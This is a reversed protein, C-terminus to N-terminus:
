YLTPFTFYNDESSDFDNMIGSAMFSKFIANKSM